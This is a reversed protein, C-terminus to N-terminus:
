NTVKASTIWGQYILWAGLVVGYAVLVVTLAKGWFDVKELRQALTVQNTVARSEGSVHIIDDEQSAIMKRYLALAAVLFALILWGVVFPNDLYNM